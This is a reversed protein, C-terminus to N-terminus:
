STLNSFYIDFLKVNKLKTDCLVKILHESNFLYFFDNPDSIVPKISTRLVLKNSIRKSREPKVMKCLQVRLVQPTLAVECVECTYGMGAKVIIMM